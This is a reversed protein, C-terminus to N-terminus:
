RETRRAVYEVCGQLTSIQAYDREPIDLSTAEHVATAFRLMDMSDLDLAERMDARPDLGDLEAEPAIQMLLRRVLALAQESNM